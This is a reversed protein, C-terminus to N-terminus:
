RNAPAELTALDWMVDSEGATTNDAPYFYRRRLLPPIAIEFVHVLRTIIHTRELLGHFSLFTFLVYEYFSVSIAKGTKEAGSLGCREDGLYLNIRYKPAKM